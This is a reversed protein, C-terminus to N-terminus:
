REMRKVSSVNKWGSLVSGGVLDGLHPLSQGKSISIAVSGPMTMHGTEENYFITAGCPCTYSFMGVGDWSIVGDCGVCKYM